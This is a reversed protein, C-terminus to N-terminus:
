PFTKRFPIDHHISMMGAGTMRPQVPGDATM